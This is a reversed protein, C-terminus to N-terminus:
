PTQGPTFWQEHKNPNPAKPAALGRGTYQLPAAPYHHAPVQCGPQQNLDWSQWEGATHGQNPLNNLRERALEEDTFHLYSGECPKFM